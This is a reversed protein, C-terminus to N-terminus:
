KAQTTKSWPASKRLVYQLSPLFVLIRFPVEGACLKTWPVIMAETCFVQVIQPALFLAESVEIPTKAM